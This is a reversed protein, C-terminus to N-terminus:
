PSSSLADRVPVGICHRCALHSIISTLHAISQDGMSMKPSVHRMRHGAAVEGSEADDAKVVASFPRGSPQRMVPTVGEAIIVLVVGVSFDPGCEEALFLAM